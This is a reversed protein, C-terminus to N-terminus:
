RVLVRFHEVFAYALLAGLLVSGLALLGAQPLRGKLSLALWLGGARARGRLRVVGPACSVLVGLLGGLVLVPHFLTDRVPVPLRDMLNVGFGTQLLGLGVLLLAPLLLAGGLLAVKARPRPRDPPSM